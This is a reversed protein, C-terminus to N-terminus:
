KNMKKNDDIVNLNKHQRKQTQKNASAAAADDDDYNEKMLSKNDSM